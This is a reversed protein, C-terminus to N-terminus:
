IEIGEESQQAEALAELLYSLSSYLFRIRKPNDSEIAESVAKDVLLIAQYETGTMMWQNAERKNDDISPM